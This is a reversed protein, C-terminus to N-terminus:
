TAHVVQHEDLRVFQYCVADALVFSPEYEGDALADLVDRAPLPGDALLPLLRPDLPEAKTSTM